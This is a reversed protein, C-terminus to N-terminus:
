QRNGQEKEFVQKRRIKNIQKNLLMNQEKLMKNEKEIVNLTSPKPEPILSKIRLKPVPPIEKVKRVRPNSIIKEPRVEM